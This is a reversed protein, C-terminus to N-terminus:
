KNEWEFKDIVKASLLIDSPINIGLSKARALSIVPQGKVTPVFPFSSPEKGEVLIGRAIKGAALGQEYGSVTVSGLNGKVIRDEWFSFEPIKSNEATWKAVVTQDTNNGNNDKFKFWGVILVADVAKNQNYELIKNKYEEFTKFKYLGVLEIDPLEKATKENIRAYVDVWNADDDDSFVAIRKLNPIIKQLLRVTPVYHEHEIVGIINKSGVFGYSAPNKNVGSFVFPISANIFNKTVFKQAADDSTYVLDPQWSNILDIAEKGIKEQEQESKKKADLQIVKYEVQLDKLPEKFGDLQSDTWIWPSHFSMVHLIKFTKEPVNPTKVVEEKKVEQACGSILLLTVLLLGFFVFWKSNKM